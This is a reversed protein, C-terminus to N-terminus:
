QGGGQLRMFLNQAVAEIVTQRNPKPLRKAQYKAYELRSGVKVSQGDVTVWHNENEIETLSDRLDGSDKPIKRRQRRMEGTVAHDVAEVLEEDISAPLRSLDQVM